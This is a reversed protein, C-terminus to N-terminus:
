VKKKPIPKKRPRGRRPPTLEAESVSEKVEVSGSKSTAEPAQDEVKKEPKSADAETTANVENQRQYKLPLGPHGGREIEEVTLEGSEVQKQLKDLLELQSKYMNQVVQEAAELGKQRGNAATRAVEATTALNDIVGVVRKFWTKIYVEVKKLDKLDAASLEGDELSKDLQLGLDGVRQAALRLADRAGEQRLQDTAAASEMESFKSGLVKALEITIRSKALNM